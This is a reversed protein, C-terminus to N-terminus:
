LRYKACVVRISAGAPLIINPNTSMFGDPSRQIKIADAPTIGFDVYLVVFFALLCGVTELIGGEIYVWILLDTDVLFEGYKKQFSRKWLTPSFWSAIRTSLAVVHEADEDKEVDPNAILGLKVDEANKERLREISEPTVPNRPPVKMLGGEIEPPEFAFSLAALLEFGLDVVLIQIASIAVPVDFIAFLVYPVIEPISHTVVYRTSKKLNQFILRGEHIGSVISAFNDDLLIMAAAEKSVDSGSQNMAIGLDAKKLAPSDNVGDGTVGVLHGLEQARKVIQLKHKPSTRAFIIEEKSFINDWEANTLTDIMEGHIVIANVESEPVDDVKRSTRKAIKEKTESLMLNIKRGIAEATLPHDGTVMMVKIGAERCHGIAERVGHKPPDELSVLGVFCFEAAPYNKKEKDFAFDAPYEAEPLLKQAFALVRHGKGAMLEYASQFALGHDPIVPIPGDKTLITTCARFVREPAGKMFLTLKGTSHTKQHISMHWKTESNFPIEFVKPYKTGLDDFDGLQKSAFRYLGAETADATINRQDMPVDTRDFRARTCLGSIHLIESVGPFDFDFAIEGTHEADFGVIPSASLLQLSTWVNTATMQNRTLTGTKDTALLTIGGLTEVGKLDKVLVNKTAMRKAAISLLMTVTAPLGQPVWAILIGIAFTLAFNPNKTRFYAVLFFAIASTIALIAMIVVFNQIEGSLPSARRKEKGTMGAIQGIVTSDGTRIVVGYGEGSIVLSGNFALNQAELPNQITSAGSLRPQPDAEGTLSSNDVKMDSASFIYIDAPVKDGMRVYVVDGLVLSSAEVPKLASARIASAKAPIMNMFSDLIAASKQHQWFEVAANIIAVGLLIAGVYTSQNGCLLCSGINRVKQTSPDVNALFAGNMAAGQLSDFQDKLAHLQHLQFLQENSFMNPHFDREIDVHGNQNSTQSIVGNFGVLFDPTQNNQRPNKLNTAHSPPLPEERKRISLSPPMSLQSINADISGLKTILIALRRKIREICKQRETIDKEDGADIQLIRTFDDRNMDFIEEVTANSKFRSLFEREDLINLNPELAVASEESTKLWLEEVDKVMLGKMYNAVSATRKKDTESELGSRSLNQLSDALNLIPYSGETVECMIKNIHQKALRPLGSSFEELSSIYPEGVHIWGRDLPNGYVHFQLDSNLLPTSPAITMQPFSGFSQFDSSREMLYTNFTQSKSASELPDFDDGSKVSGDPLFRGQLYDEIHKRFLAKRKKRFERLDHMASENKMTHHHNRPFSHSQTKPIKSFNSLQSKSDTYRENQGVFSSFHSNEYEEVLEKMRVAVSYIDSEAHNYLMANNTLFNLDTKFSGYSEYSGARIKKEITDLDIPFKVVDLYNPALKPDVPFWFYKNKDMSDGYLYDSLLIFVFFTYRQLKEVLELFATQLELQTSKKKAESGSFNRRGKSHSSDEDDSEDSYSDMLMRKRNQTSVFSARNSSPQISDAADQDEYNEDLDDDDDEEDEEDPDEQIGYDRGVFNYNYRINNEDDQSSVSSSVSILSDGNQPFNIENEVFGSQKDVGVFGFGTEM